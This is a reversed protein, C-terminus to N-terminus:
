PVFTTVANCDLSSDLETKESGFSEYSACHLRWVVIQGLQGSIYLSADMTLVNENVSVKCKTVEAELTLLELKHQLPLTIHQLQICLDNHVLMLVNNM